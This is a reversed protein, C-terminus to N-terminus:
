SHLRPLNTYSPNFQFFAYDSVTAISQLTSYTVLLHNNKTQVNMVM